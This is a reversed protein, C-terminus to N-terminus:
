KESLLQSSNDSIPRLTNQNHNIEDHTPWVTKMQHPDCPGLAKCLRSDSGNIRESYSFCYHIEIVPRM